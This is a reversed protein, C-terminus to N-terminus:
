VNYERLLTLKSVDIPDEANPTWLLFGKEARLPPNLIDEEFFRFTDLGIPPATPLSQRAIQLLGLSTEYSSSLVIPVKSIPLPLGKVTPKIVLAALTPIEERLSSEDLAIPFQTIKSFLVLDEYRAIPEELYEFDSPSFHRAFFLAEELTWARNCDLRLRFKEKYQKVREIADKVSLHGLKLKLTSFGSRPENLLCLPVKLPTKVFPYSACALGFRVSPLRPSATELNPLLALVEELAEELSEQSVGPLPAIEGWGENWQLILGQRLSRQPACTKLAYSYLRILSPQSLDRDNKKIKM